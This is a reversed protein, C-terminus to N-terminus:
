QNFIASDGFYYRVMEVADTNDGTYGCEYNSYEYNYVEQATCERAIRERQQQTFNELEEFGEKTGYAGAGGSYIKKDGIKNKGEKFQEENFAFFVEKLEPQQQKIEQYKM